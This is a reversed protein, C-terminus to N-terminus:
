VAETESINTMDLESFLQSFFDEFNYFLLEKICKLVLGYQGLDLKGDEVIIKPAMKELFECFEDKPCNKFFLDIANSFNGDAFSGFSPGLIRGLDHVIGWGEKAPIKSFSCVKGDIKKTHM